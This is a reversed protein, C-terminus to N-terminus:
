EAKKGAVSSVVFRISNLVLVILTSSVKLAIKTRLYACAPDRHWSDILELADGIEEKTLPKPFIADCWDFVDRARAVARAKQTAHNLYARRAADLAPGANRVGSAIPDLSWSSPLGVHLSQRGDKFQVLCHSGPIRYIFDPEANHEHRRRSM